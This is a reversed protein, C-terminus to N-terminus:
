DIREKRARIIGRRFYPPKKGMLMYGGSYQVTYGLEKFYNNLVDADSDRHYTCCAVKINRNQSLLDKSAKLVKVEAGEIDMKIFLDGKNENQLITTLKASNESDNDSVLKNIIVAKDRYQSFTARLPEKWKENPEIIFIKKARDIVDLSFLAEASGLDVVLDDVEVKFIDSEYQHPSKNRYGGGLIGEIEIYYKYLQEAQAKSWNVPMYLRKAKHIVYPMSLDTNFGSELNHHSTRVSKYPFTFVTEIGIEGCEKLYQIEEQYENQTNKSSYHKIVHYRIYEKRIVRYKNLTSFYQQDININKLQQKILKLFALRTKALLYKIDHMIYKM